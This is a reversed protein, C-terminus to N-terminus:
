IKKTSVCFESADDNVQSYYDMALTVVMSVNGELVFFRTRAQNTGYYFTRAVQLELILFFIHAPRKRIRGGRDIKVKVGQSSHKVEWRPIRNPAELGLRRRANSMPAVADDFVKTFTTAGSNWFSLFQSSLRSQLHRSMALCAGDYLRTPPLWSSAIVYYCM